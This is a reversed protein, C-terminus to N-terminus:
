STESFYYISAKFNNLLNFLCRRYMYLENTIWNLIADEKTEPYFFKCSDIKKEVVMLDFNNMM